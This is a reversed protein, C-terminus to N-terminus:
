GSVGVSACAEVKTLLKNEARNPYVLASGIIEAGQAGGKIQVAQAGGPTPEFIIVPGQNVAGIQIAPLRQDPTLYVRFKVHDTKLCKIQKTYPQDVLAYSDKSKSINKTGAQPKAAIGCASLLVTMLGATVALAVRSMASLTSSGFAPLSAGM